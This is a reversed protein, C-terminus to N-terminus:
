RDYGQGYWFSFKMTETDLVGQSYLEGDHALGKINVVDDLGTEENFIELKDDIKRHYHGHFFIEPRVVDVVTLM